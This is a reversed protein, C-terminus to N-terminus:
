RYIRPDCSEWSRTVLSSISVATTTITTTTSSHSPTAAATHPDATGGSWLCSYCNDNLGGSCFCILNRPLQSSNGDGGGDGGLALLLPLSSHMWSLMVHATQHNKNGDSELFILSM